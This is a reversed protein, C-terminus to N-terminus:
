LDELKKTQEIKVDHAKGNQFSVTVRGFFGGAALKDLFSHLRELSPPGNDAARTRDTARQDAIAPM